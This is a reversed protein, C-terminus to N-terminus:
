KPLRYGIEIISKILNAQLSLLKFYGKNINIGFFRKSSKALIRSKKLNELNDINSLIFLISVIGNIFV